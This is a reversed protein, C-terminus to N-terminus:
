DTRIIRNCNTRRNTILYRAWLPSTISGITDNGDDCFIMVGGTDDTAGVLILGADATNSKVGIQIPNYSGGGAFSIGTTTITSPLKIGVVSAGSINIANASCASSIEIGDAPTTGSIKIGDTMSSATISIPTAITGNLLIGTTCTGVDIGTTCCSDDIKLGIAFDKSGGGSEADRIVIGSYDGSITAGSASGTEVAIGAAEYTITTSTGLDIRAQIASAYLQNV